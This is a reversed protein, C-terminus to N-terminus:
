PRPREVLEVDERGIVLLRGIARPSCLDASRRTNGGPPPPVTRRKAPQEARPTPGLTFQGLNAPFARLPYIRCQSVVFRTLPPSCSTPGPTRLALVRRGPSRPLPHRLHRWRAAVRVAAAM